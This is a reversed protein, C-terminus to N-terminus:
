APRSMGKKEKMQRSHGKITAALLFFLVAPLVWSKSAPATEKKIAGALLLLSNKRVQSWMRAPNNTSARMFTIEPDLNRKNKIEKWRKSEEDVSWWHHLFCYFLHFIFFYFILFRWSWTIKAAELFFCRAALFMFNITSIAIMFGASKNILQAPKM